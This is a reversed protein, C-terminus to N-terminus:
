IREVTIIEKNAKTFQFSQFSCRRVKENIKAIPKGDEDTAYSHVPYYCNENLHEAVGLPIEYSQGDRLNYNQPADGKFQKFTFGMEGGPVEHFIFKGSVIEKSRQRMAELEKPSIKKREM